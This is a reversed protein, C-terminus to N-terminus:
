ICYGHPYATGTLIHMVWSDYWWYGHTMDETGTLTHMVRSDYWWYGHTMDDTGTLWIMLVRSDYGWYGHPYATGTLWIKLVWFSGDELLRLDIFTSLHYMKLFSKIHVKLRSVLLWFRSVYALNIATFNRLIYTITNIEWYKGCWAVLAVKTSLKKGQLCNAPLNNISTEYVLVAILTERAM